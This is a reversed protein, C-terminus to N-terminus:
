MRRGQTLDCFAFLYASWRQGAHQAPTVERVFGSALLNLGM